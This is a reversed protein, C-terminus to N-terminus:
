IFISISKSGIKHSNAIYWHMPSSNRLRVRRGGSCNWGRLIARRSKEPVVNTPTIGFQIGRIKQHLSVFDSPEVQARRQFVQVNPVKRQGVLFRINTRCESFFSESVKDHPTCKPEVAPEPDHKAGFSHMMEHVLNLVGM